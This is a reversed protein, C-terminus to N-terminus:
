FKQTKMIPYLKKEVFKVGRVYFVLHEKVGRVYFVLHEKVGRVYFVLHEKV